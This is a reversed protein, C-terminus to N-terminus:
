SRESIHECDDGYLTFDEGANKVSADWPDICIFNALSLQDPDDVGTYGILCVWHEGFGAAVHIVTPKGAAIQGYAERLLAEPSEASRDFSEAGGWDDWTCEWCSYYSHDRVTGDIIADAYACSFAPCCITHGTSQQSGIEDIADWDIDLIYEDTPAPQEATAGDEQVAAGAFGSASMAAAFAGIGNAQESPSEAALAAPIALAAALAAALLGGAVIHAGRVIVRGHKPM